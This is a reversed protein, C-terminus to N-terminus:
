SPLIHFVSCNFRAATTPSTVDSASGRAATSPTCYAKRYQLLHLSVLIDVSYIDLMADRPNTLM